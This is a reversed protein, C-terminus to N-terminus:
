KYNLRSILKKWYSTDLIKKLQYIQAIHTLYLISFFQLSLSFKYSAYSDYSLLLKSIQFHSICYILAYIDCITNTVQQLMSLYMQFIHGSDDSIIAFKTMFM